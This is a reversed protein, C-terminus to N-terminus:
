FRRALVATERFVKKSGNSGNYAEVYVIYIGIRNRQGDDTRGDWILFGDLGASYNNALNRVLRGYRDYIRVKLLYDPDDFQYNIFLNDDVGDDDPSFPNPTLSIGESEGDIEPLQYLSNQGMPTGGIVNTSSGWNSPDNPEFDPSIRELSIGQTTILNPNHWEPSYDVKDIVMRTSDALYVSRGSLTLSLSTRDARLGFPNVEESLGFATGTRSESLLLDEPEPYFLAYGNAPIWKQSTSVPDIRAINNNGDPQDHLFVGELSIAYPQRNYIELYESQDPAGDSGGSLPQYMIENIILDGETVPQAIEVEDVTTNGKFDSLNEVKLINEEGPVVVGAGLTIRNANGKEYDIVDAEVGNILFRTSTATQDSTFGSFQAQEYGSLDVFKNLVIELSDPHSLNAFLIEPPTLDVEFRSNQEAPTSGSEAASDRWNFPDISLAEPDRRELSVGPTHSGWDPTYALSDMTVGDRDRLGVSSGTNSLGPFGLLYIIQDSRDAFSVEDTLVLFSNPRLVTNQPLITSNSGAFFQGGSLDITKDTKNFIEVFEPSGASERRYLIENIVLDGPSVNDFELFELTESTQLMPNGFLDTVGDVTITYERGNQFQQQLLIFVESRDVNIERIGLAPSFSYNSHNGASQPDVTKNFQLYFGRNEFLSIESLVPSDTDPQVQNQEAPTGLLVAPSEAWNEAYVSAVNPSKRELAIGRGGWVSPIYELSDALEGSADFIRIQEPLTTPFGPFNAMEVANLDGFVNELAESNDTLVLYDRPGITVSGTSITGGPRTSIEKRLLKWNSLNLYKDSVNYLEVYAPYDTPPNYMFENIVIDGSSYTDYITFRFEEGDNITWGPLSRILGTRVTKEGSEPPEAFQFSVINPDTLAVSAPRIGDMEFKAPIMDDPNVDSNFILFIDRNSSVQIGTVTFPYESEALNESGPTGFLEAPSEAWNESYISPFDPRRRELAVGRGGWESITYRLSDATVGSSDVLRIEDGVQRGFDPFLLMEVHNLEGYIFELTATDSTIVIFEGPQLLIDESFIVGGIDNAGDRRLLEWDQLNVAEEGSNYLEVYPVFESPPDVMFENIVVISQAYGHNVPLLIFGALCLFEAIKRLITGM